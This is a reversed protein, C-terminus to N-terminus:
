APDLSRLRFGFGNERTWVMVLPVPTRDDGRRSFVAEVRVRDATEGIVRRIFISGESARTAWAESARAMGTVPTDGPWAVRANDFFLYALPRAFDPGRPNLFWTSRVVNLAQAAAARDGALMTCDTLRTIDNRTKERDLLACAPMAAVAAAALSFGYRVAPGDGCADDTRRRVVGRADVAEVTVVWSHLCIADNGRSALPRDFLRGEALQEDWTAVPLITSLLAPAPRDGQTTRWEVRPEEGPARAFTVLGADRGYGDVFFARVTPTRREALREAPEVGYLARQKAQAAAACRDQGRDDRCDPTQATGLSALLVAAATLIAKM